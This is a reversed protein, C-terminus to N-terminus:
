RKGGQNVEEFRFPFWGNENGSPLHGTETERVCICNGWYLPEDLLVDIVVYLRDYVLAGIPDVCRVIMGKYPIIGIPIRRDSM